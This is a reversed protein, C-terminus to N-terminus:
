LLSNSLYVNTHVSHSIAAFAFYYFFTKQIFSIALVKHHHLTSCFFVLPQLESTILDLPSAFFQFYYFYLLMLRFISSIYALSHFWVKSKISKAFNYNKTRLVSTVSIFLLWALTNFAVSDSFCRCLWFFLLFYISPFNLSLSPCDLEKYIYKVTANCLLQLQLTGNEKNWIFKEIMEDRHDNWNFCFSSTNSDRTGNNNYFIVVM